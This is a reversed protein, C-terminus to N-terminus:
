SVGFEVIVSHSDLVSIKNISYSYTIQDGSYIIYAIEDYVQTLVVGLEKFENEIMSIMLFREDPVAFAQTLYNELVNLTMNYKKMIEILNERIGFVYVIKQYELYNSM